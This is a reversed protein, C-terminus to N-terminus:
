KKSARAKNVLFDVVQMLQEHSGAMSATSRYRGAVIITPVGDAEYNRGIIQAKRFANDVGFSKYAGLFKQRDIGNKVAFDAFANADNLRQKDLHIADFLKGHLQETIGLAEFTYFVRAHPAWDKRLVAPMRVFAVDKPKKNLWANLAPELNFCHSCGYWFLERVEIKKEDDVAQPQSLEAYHQGKSFEVAWTPAVVFLSVLIGLPLIRFSRFIPM